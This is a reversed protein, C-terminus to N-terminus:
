IARSDSASRAAGAGIAVAAACHIPQCAGAIAPSLSHQVAERAASVSSTRAAAHGEVRLAVDVTGSRVSAFGITAGPLAAADHVLEHGGLTAAPFLIHDM